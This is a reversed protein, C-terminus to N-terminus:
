DECRLHHDRIWEKLALASGYTRDRDVHRPREKMPQEPVGAGRLLDAGAWAETSSDAVDEGNCHGPLGTIFIQQYHGTSFEGATTNAAFQHVWGEMVFYDADVRHTM